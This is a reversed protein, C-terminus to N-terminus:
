LPRKKYYRYFNNKSMVYGSFSKATSNRHIQLIELTTENETFTKVIEEMYDLYLIVSLKEM